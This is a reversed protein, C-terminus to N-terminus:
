LKVAEELELQDASTAAGFKLYLAPTM